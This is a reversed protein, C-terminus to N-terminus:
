GKVREANGWRGRGWWATEESIAATGEAQEWGSGASPQAHPPLTAPTPRRRRCTARTPARRS